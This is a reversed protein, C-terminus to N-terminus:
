SSAEGREAAIFDELQARARGRVKSRLPPLLAVAFGTPGLAQRAWRGFDFDDDHESILGDEFRFRANIDNVVPRGTQGFTYTAIWNASGSAEDADHSRLEIELDTARSTLMRWMAGVEDGHLDGFAPDSFRAGPAYCATMAAGDGEGFATYFREILTRNAEASM